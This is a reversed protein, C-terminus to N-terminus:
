GQDLDSSLFNVVFWGHIYKIGLTIYEDIHKQQRMKYQQFQFEWDQITIIYLAEVTDFLGIGYHVEM